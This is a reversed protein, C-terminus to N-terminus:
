FGPLRQQRKDILQKEERIAAKMRQAREMVQLMYDAGLPKNGMLGRRPTTFIAKNM